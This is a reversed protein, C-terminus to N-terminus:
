LLLSGPRGSRVRGFYRATMKILPQKQCPCLQGINRTGSVRVFVLSLGDAYGQELEQPQSGAVPVEVSYLGTVTVAAAPAAMLALVGFLRLSQRVIRAAQM